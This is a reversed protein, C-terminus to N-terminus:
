EFSDKLIRESVQRTFTGASLLQRFASRANGAVNCTVLYNVPNEDSDDTAISINQFSSVRDASLCIVRLARNEGPALVASAFSTSLPPLPPTVSLSLPLSGQNSLFIFGSSPEGAVTSIALSSGSAPTSAFEPANPQVRCQLDFNVSSENSDNTSVSLTGTFFGTNTASCTLTYDLSQGAAISAPISPSLGFPAPLPSFGTIQLATSGTNRLVLTTSGNTGQFTSIALPGPAAPMSDFEPPPPAGVNCNVTYNVLPEDSDNTGLTFSRAFNGASTADCNVSLVVSGGAAIPSSIGTVTVPSAPATALNLTLPASGANQVTLPTSVNTGQGTVLNFPGPAAPTSSFEPAPAASVTCAVDYAIAGENDDPDNTSFSLTQAASGATSADCAVTLTAGLGPAIAGPPSLNASLRGSLGTLNGLVLSTNGTNSVNIAASTSTGQTTALAIPGPPAPLAAFEASRINCDVGHSNSAEDADDTAVIFNGLFTGPSAPNCTVTFDQSVGGGIMANAPAISLPPSLGAVSSV